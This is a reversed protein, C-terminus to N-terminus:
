PTQCPKRESEVLTIRALRSKPARAVVESDATVIEAATTEIDTIVLTDFDSLHAPASTAGTSTNVAASLSPWSAATAVYLAPSVNMSASRDNDDSRSVGKRCGWM